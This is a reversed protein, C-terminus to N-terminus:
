IFYNLRNEILSQAFFEVRTKINRYDEAHMKRNYVSLTVVYVFDETERFFIDEEERFKCYDKQSLFTVIHKLM